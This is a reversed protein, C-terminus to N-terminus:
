TGTIIKVANTGDSTILASTATALTVGTGTAFAVTITQATNNRVFILSGLTAARAWTITRGATVVGALINFVNFQSDAESLTQNADSPFTYQKQGFNARTNIKTQGNNGTGAPGGGALILDGGKSNGSGATQAQVTLDVGAGAAIQTQGILPAAVANGFVLGAVLVSVATDAVGFRTTGATQLAVIGNAGAGDKAGGGLILNGGNGAAGSKAAQATVNFDVGNTNTVAIDQKITPVINEGFRFLMSGGAGVFDWNMNQINGVTWWNVSGTTVPVQVKLGIGTSALRIGYYGHLDLRSGVTVADQGLQIVQNAGDLSLVIGDGSAHRYGIMTTPSAYNKFRLQGIAPFTGASADLQVIGYFNATTSTSGATDRFNVTTADVYGIPASLQWTANAHMYVATTAYLNTTTAGGAVNGFTLAGAATTIIDGVNSGGTSTLKNGIPFNVIGASGTLTGVVTASALGTVDGALAGIAAAGQMGIQLSLNGAGDITGIQYDTSTLTAVREIRGSSSVRAYGATGTLGTISTSLLGDIAGKVRGGANAAALVVGMPRGSAALAGPTAKTVTGAVGSTCFVDGVALAASGGDVTFYSGNAGGILFDVAHQELGRIQNDIYGRDNADMRYNADQVLPPDVLLSTTILSQPAAM